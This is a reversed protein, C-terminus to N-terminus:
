VPRNHNLTQKGTPTQTEPDTLTNYTSLNENLPHNAKYKELDGSSWADMYGIIYEANFPIFKITFEDRETKNDPYQDLIVQATINILETWARLMKQQEVKFKNGSLLVAENIVKDRGLEIDRKHKLEVNEIKLNLNDEITKINVMEKYKEFTSITDAQNKLLNSQSNLNSELTEIKKTQYRSTLFYGIISLVQISLILITDTTM